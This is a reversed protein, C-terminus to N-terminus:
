LMQACAIWDLKLDLAANGAQDKIGVIPTMFVTSPFTAASIETATLKAPAAASGALNGNVFYEVTKPNARLRFGVKVYTAPVLTVLSDLKTKTAGDQYTQSAAKYAGDVAAGEAALHVFGVFDADTALSSATDVFLKDTAGMGVNGLGIAVDWKAATIASMSFRAEFVLDKDALKFPAGLGRGWQLVAEDNDANGDLSLQILGKETATDAIQEITCGSSTLKLYPGIISTTHFSHFNDYFGFAPNGSQDISTGGLPGFSTPPAFGRWLKGSPLHPSDLESFTTYM